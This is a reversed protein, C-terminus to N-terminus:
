GHRDPHEAPRPSRPASPAPRLLPPLQDLLLCAVALNIAVDALNFVPFSVPLFALFDTVAGHRWRDIGNGAAGGLLFGLGLSLWLGRPPARLIWVLVATSVVLSVVGLSTTSSSFLSFAAGTNRVAQLQLVGPLFPRVMGFPLTQLIWHKSLQDALLVAAALALALLRKPRGAGPEPSVQRSSV